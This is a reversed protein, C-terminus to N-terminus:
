MDEAVQLALRSARKNYEIVCGGCMPYGHVAMMSSNKCGISACDPTNLVQHDSSALDKNM